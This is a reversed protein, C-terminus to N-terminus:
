AALDEAVDVPFGRKVARDYLVALAAMGLNLCHLTPIMVRHRCRDLTQRGLTGDEPGFIYYAREPHVFRDLPVAGPVLDVAVPVAGYPAAAWLDPQNHLVPISRWAKTTDTAQKHYRHGSLIVLDAGFCHATRMIAGVNANCKPSHLGIAAFGRRIM